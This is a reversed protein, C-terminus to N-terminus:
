VEPQDFKITGFALRDRNGFNVRRVDYWLRGSLVSEHENKVNIRITAKDTGLAVTIEGDVSTLTLLSAGGRTESFTCEIEWGTTDVAPYMVVDIDADGGKPISGIDQQEAKVVTVSM